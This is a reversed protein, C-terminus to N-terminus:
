PEVCAANTGILELTICSSASDEPPLQAPMSPRELQHHHIQTISWVSKPNDNSPWCLHDGKTRSGGWCSCGASCCSHVPRLHCGVAVAGEVQVSKKSLKFWSQPRVHAWKAPKPVHQQEGGITSANASSLASDTWRCSRSGSDPTPPSTYRDCLAGASPGCRGSGWRSGAGSACPPRCSGSSLAPGPASGSAAAQPPALWTRPASHPAGDAALVAAPMSHGSAPCTGQQSDSSAPPHPPQPERQTSGGLCLLSAKRAHCHSSGMHVTVWATSNARQM